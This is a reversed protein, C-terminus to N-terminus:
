LQNCVTPYVICMENEEYIHLVYQILLKQPPFTKSNRIRASNSRNWIRSELFVPDPRIFNCYQVKELEINDM